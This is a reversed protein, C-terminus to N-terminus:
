LDAYDSPVDEMPPRDRAASPREKGLKELQDITPLPIYEQELLDGRPPRIRKGPLELHLLAQDM